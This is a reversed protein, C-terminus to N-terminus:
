AMTLDESVQWLAKAEEFGGNTSLRPTTATYGIYPGLMETFPIMPRSKNNPIWYPQLYVDKEKPASMVAAAVAPACGQQPSLYVYGFITQLWGPFGRWIDSAVSGPNVAISRVNHSEGLRRNLEQSFFVMALKSASYSEPPPDPSYTAVSRWFQQDKPRSGSFHHMVSSLNIVRGGKLNDILLNTLLFHGLFNSQFLLDLNDNSRGSTNLGANNILVNVTPYRERIAESFKRVSDFDSLDLPHDMVVANGNSNKSAENISEMARVAKDRSRCALIVEWGYDVALTKATEFGIGTNSGTVVAVKKEGDGPPLSNQINNQSLFIWCHAICTYALSLPMCAIFAASSFFPQEPSSMFVISPKSGVM